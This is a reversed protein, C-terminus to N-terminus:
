AKGAVKPHRAKIAAITKRWAAPDKFMMDLQERITPYEALRREIYTPERVEDAEALAAPIAVKPDAGEPIAVAKVEGDVDVTHTNGEVSLTKFTKM